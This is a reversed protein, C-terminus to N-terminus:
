RSKTILSIRAAPMAKTRGTNRTSRFKMPIREALVM